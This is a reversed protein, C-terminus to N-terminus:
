RYVEHHGQKAKNRDAHESKCPALLTNRASSELKNLRAWKTDTHLTSFRTHEDKRPHASGQCPTASQPDIGRVVERPPVRGEVCTVDGGLLLEHTRALLSHTTHMPFFRMALKGNQKTGGPPTARIFSPASKM